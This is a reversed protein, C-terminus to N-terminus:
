SNLKAEKKKIKKLDKKTCDILGDLMVPVSGETFTAVESLHKLVQARRDYFEDLRGNGKSATQIPIM